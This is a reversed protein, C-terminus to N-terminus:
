GGHSESLQDSDIRGARVLRLPYEAQATRPLAILLLLAASKRFDPYKSADKFHWTQFPAQNDLGSPGM